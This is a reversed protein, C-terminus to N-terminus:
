SLRQQIITALRKLVVDDDHMYTLARAVKNNSVNEGTIQRLDKTMKKLNDEEEETFKFGLTSRKYTSQKAKSIVPSTSAPAVQQVTTKNTPGLRRNSM